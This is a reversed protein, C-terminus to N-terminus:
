LPARRVGLGTLVLAAAAAFGVMAGSTLSTLGATPVAVILLVLGGALLWRRERTRWAVVLAVLAAVLGFRAPHQSGSTFSGDTGFGFIPAGVFGPDCETTAYGDADYVTTCYGPVYYGPIIYDDTGTNINWPLGLALLLAAGLALLWPAPRTV